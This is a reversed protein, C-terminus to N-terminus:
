TQLYPVCHTPVGLLRVLRLEPDCHLLAQVMQASSLTFRQPLVIFGACAADETNAAVACYLCGSMPDTWPPQAAQSLADRGKCESTVDEPFEWELAADLDPNRPLWPLLPLLADSLVRPRTVDSCIVEDGLYGLGRSIKLV